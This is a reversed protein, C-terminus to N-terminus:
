GQVFKASAPLIITDGFRPTDLSVGTGANLQAVEDYASNKCQDPNVGPIKFLISDTGDENQIVYPIVADPDTDTSFECHPGKVTPTPESDTTQIGEESCGVFPILAVTTAVALGLMKCGKIVNSKTSTNPKGDYFNWFAGIKAVFSSIRGGSVPTLHLDKPINFSELTNM